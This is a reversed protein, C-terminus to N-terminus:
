KVTICDGCRLLCKYKYKHHMTEKLKVKEPKVNLAYSLDKYELFVKCSLIRYCYMWNGSSNGFCDFDTNDDNRM